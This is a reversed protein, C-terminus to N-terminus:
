STTSARSPSIDNTLILLLAVDAVERRLMKLGDIPPVNQALTQRNWTSAYTRICRLHWRSCLPRYILRPSNLPARNSNVDYRPMTSSARRLACRTHLHRARLLPTRVCLLRVCARMNKRLAANRLNMREADATYILLADRNQHRWRKGRYLAPARYSLIRTSRSAM